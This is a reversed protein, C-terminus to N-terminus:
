RYFPVMRELVQDVKERSWGRGPDLVFQLLVDVAASYLQEFEQQDMKSFKLSKARLRVSGDPYGIVHYYGAKVIVWRRFEEPNKEPTFVQDTGELHCLAPEFYDFGLKLLAFFKRHFKPNRRKRFEAHIVEGTKLTRVYDQDDESEPLLTMGPGRMLSLGAM